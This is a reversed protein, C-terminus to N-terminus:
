LGSGAFSIPEFPVIPSGVDLQIQNHPDLPIDRLSKTWPKGNLFATVKGHATAVQDSSLPQRWEDFFIGLTYIRKTPSEIHVIGDSAHTHLWYYCHTAGYFPGVPTQQAVVPHILGIGAPLSRSQGDVYVQLHVHIHYALQELPACEIVGDIKTGPATTSAPALEPGQELPITEPGPSSSSAATTSAAGSTAAASSTTTSTSKSGSSGCGAVLAASALLLALISTRRPM